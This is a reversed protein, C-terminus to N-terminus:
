LIKTNTYYKKHWSWNKITFNCASYYYVFKPKACKCFPMHLNSLAPYYIQLWLIYSGNSVSGANIWFVSPYGMISIIIEYLHSPNSIVCKMGWKNLMIVDYWHQYGLSFVSMQHILHLSYMPGPKHNTDDKWAAEHPINMWLGWSFM